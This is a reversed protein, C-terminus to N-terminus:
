ARAATAVRRRVAAGVLGFGAIMLAWSAPEPTPSAGAFSVNDVAFDNYQHDQTLDSLTITATTALGALFTGTYTSYADNYSLLGTTVLAVGNIAAQLNPQPGATGLNVADFSFAYSTGAVIAVTEQFFYGGAAAGDLILQNGHGNTTGDLDAFCGCVNRPNTSVFQYGTADTGSYQTAYGTAGASFTGNTVLEAASAPGALAAAVVVATATLKISTTM